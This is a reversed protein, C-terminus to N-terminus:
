YTYYLDDIACELFGLAHESSYYEEEATNFMHKSVLDDDPDFGDLIDSNRWMDDKEIEFLIRLMWIAIRISVRRYKRNSMMLLRVLKKMM